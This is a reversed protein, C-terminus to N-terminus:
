LKITTFDGLLQAIPSWNNNEKVKRIYRKNKECLPARGNNGLVRNKMKYPPPLTTRWPFNFYKIVRSVDSALCVVTVLKTAVSAARALLTQIFASAPRVM